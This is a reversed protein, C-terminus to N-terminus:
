DWILWYWAHHSLGDSRTRPSSSTLMDGDNCHSSLIQINHETVGERGTQMVRQVDFKGRPKCNFNVAVVAVVAVVSVVAGKRIGRSKPSAYGDIQLNCDVGDENKCCDLWGGRTSMDFACRM